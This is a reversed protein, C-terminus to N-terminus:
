KVSAEATFHSNFYKHTGINQEFPLEAYLMNKYTRIKNEEYQSINITDFAM